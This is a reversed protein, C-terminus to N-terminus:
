VELLAQPRRKRRTHHFRSQCRLTVVLEEPAFGGTRCRHLGCRDRSAAAVDKPTDGIIVVRCEHFGSVGLPAQVQVAGADSSARDEADCGFGSFPVSIKHRALRARAKTMAGRRVNRHASASPWAPSEM